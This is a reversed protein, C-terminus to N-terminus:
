FLQGDRARDYEIRGDIWVVSVAARPDLPNGTRIALDADKGPELSGVRADIGFAIAPHITMARLMLYGDAGYRAGMAAQLFLEEQPVVPSDTNISLLPVGVADYEASIGVIHGERSSFYEITRPGNNAPMGMEAVFPAVKWADFCGHSLVSRVPYRGRWMRTTNGVGDSGATHILVPLERAHVKMLNELAVDRRGQALAARAKDNADELLWSLGARSAGLDGAGRQPTSDQAVKVGGPDALVGNEYTDHLKPKYLVGAGSISTGSGPIGFLTTVGGAVARQLQPNGPVVTPSVRFEANIPLVMDNIDGFGGAHVHTHLDVLGPTLWAAGYDIVEFGQPVSFQTGVAEIKGNRVLLMGPALVRDTADMTFVKAARIVVGSDGAALPALAGASARTDIASELEDSAARNSRCACLALAALLLTCRLSVV